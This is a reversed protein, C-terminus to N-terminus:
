EEESVEPVELVEPVDSVEPTEPAVTAALVVYRRPAEGESYSRVGERGAAADHVVKRDASSMPELVIEGGERIVQDILQNAYIGLAQRRREAHGAIDLRLRTSTDTARLVVTKTIEHIAEIVSGRPGVMAETQDGNINAVIADDEVSVEVSGKLGFAEVLGTLFDRVADAQEQTPVNTEKRQESRPPRGGNRQGGAPKKGTEGRNGERRNGNSRGGRSEVPSSPGSEPRPGKGKKRRRRKKGGDRKPKIRVVADRAGIGLFGKEGESIIEIDAEDPNTLGLEAVGFQIAIEVTKGSVEVWEM